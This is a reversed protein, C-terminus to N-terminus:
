KGEEKEEEEEEEEEEAEEEAKAEAKAEAEEEEKKKKKRKKRQSGKLGWPLPARWTSLAELRKLLVSTKKNMPVLSSDHPRSSPWFFCKSSAAQIYTQDNSDFLNAPQRRGAVFASISPSPVASSATATSAM